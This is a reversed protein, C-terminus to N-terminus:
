SLPYERANLGSNTGGAIAAMAEAEEEILAEREADRAVREAESMDKGERGWIEMEDAKEIAARKRAAAITHRRSAARKMKTAAAARAPHEMKFREHAQHCAEILAQSGIQLPEYAKEYVGGEKSTFGVVGFVSPLGAELHEAWRKCVDPPVMDIKNLVLVMPMKLNHTIHAYLAPPLHMLPHRADVVVVAVDIRELLRWLQRWVQMNMEFVPAYGGRDQIKLKVEAMWRQFGKNEKWHVRRSSMKYSWKPRLPMLHIAEPSQDFTTLNLDPFPEEGEPATYKGGSDTLPRKADGIRRQIDMNAEGAFVTQMNSTTSAKNGAKIGLADATFTYTARARRADIVQQNAVSAAAEKAALKKQAGHDQAVRLNSTATSIGGGVAGGHTLSTSGKTPREKASLRKGKKGGIFFL